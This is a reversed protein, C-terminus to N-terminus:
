LTNRRKSKKRSKKTIIWSPRLHKPIPHSNASPPPQLRILTRRFSKIDIGVEEIITEPAIELEYSQATLFISVAVVAIPPYDPAVTLAKQAVYKVTRLVISVPLGLKFSHKLLLNYCLFTYSDNGLSDCLRGMFYDTVLLRPSNKIAILVLKFCQLFDSSDIGTVSNLSEHTVDEGLQRYIFSFFDTNSNICLPRM